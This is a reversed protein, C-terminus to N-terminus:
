LGQWAGLNMKAEARREVDRPLKSFFNIGTLREVDDVTTAYSRMPRNDDNNNYVFGIAEAKRGDYRLIVKFFQRPVSIRVASGITEYREGKRLVPGCVIYLRGYRRAWTRCRSELEEWDGANLRHTQPCINTMVFCENMAQRSHKNDAAPCMHGRDYGSGRYDYTTVRTGRRQLEDPQFNDARRERGNAREATLTWAVYNPQCHRNNYSVTFSTHRIIEEPRDTLYAPLEYRQGLATVALAAWLTLCTLLRKM